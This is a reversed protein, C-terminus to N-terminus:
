SIINQFQCMQCYKKILLNWYFEMNWVNRFVHSIEGQIGLQSHATVARSTPSESGLKGLDGGRRITELLVAHSNDKMIVSAKNNEQPLTSLLIFIEILFWKEDKM